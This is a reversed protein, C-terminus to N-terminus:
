FNSIISKLKNKNVKNLSKSNFDYILWIFLELSCFNDEYLFFCIWHINDQWQSPVFKMVKIEKM